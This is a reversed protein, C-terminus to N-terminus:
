VPMSRPGHLKVDERGEIVLFLNRTSFSGNNEKRLLTLDTHKVLLKSAYVGDGRGKDGHCLACSRTYEQKGAEIADQLEQSM